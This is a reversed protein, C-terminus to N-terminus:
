RSQTEGGTVAGDTGFIDVSVMERNSIAGMLAATNATAREVLGQSPNPRNEKLFLARSPAGAAALRTAVATSRPDFGAGAILLVRRM